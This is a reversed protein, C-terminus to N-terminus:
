ENKLGQFSTTEVAKHENSGFPKDLPHLDAPSRRDGELVKGTRIMLSQNPKILIEANYNDALSLVVHEPSASKLIVGEFPGPQHIVQNNMWVTWKDPGFYLIASVFIIPQPVNQNDGSPLNLVPSEDWDDDNKQDLIKQEDDTLMLSFNEARALQCSLFLLCIVLFKM